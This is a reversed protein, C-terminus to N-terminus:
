VQSSLLSGLPAQVTENGQVFDCDKFCDKPNQNNSDQKAKRKRKQSLTGTSGEAYDLKTPLQLYGQGEFGWRGVEQM